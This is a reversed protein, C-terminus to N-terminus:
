DLRNKLNTKDLIWQIHNEYLQYRAWPKNKQLRIQNQKNKINFYKYRQAELKYLKCINSIYSISRKTYISINKLTLIRYKEGMYKRNGYRAMYIFKALDTDLIQKM